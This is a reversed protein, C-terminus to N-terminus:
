TGVDRNEAFRRVKVDQASLKELRRGSDSHTLTLPNHTSSSSSGKKRTLGVHVLQSDMATTLVISSEVM